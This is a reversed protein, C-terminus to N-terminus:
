RMTWPRAAVPAGLPPRAARHPLLLVLVPLPRPDRPRHAPRPGPAGVHPPYVDSRPGPGRPDQGSRLTASLRHPPTRDFRGPRLLNLLHGGRAAAWDCRHRGPTDGPGHRAAPGRPGHARDPRAGSGRNGGRLLREAPGQAPGRPDPTPRYGARPANPDTPAIRGVLPLGLGARHLEPRTLRPRTVPAIDAFDEPSPSARAPAGGGLPGAAARGRRWCNRCTPRPWRRYARQREPGLGSAREPPLRPGPHVRGAAPGPARRPRRSPSAGRWSLPLSCCLRSRGSTSDSPDASAPMAVPTPEETATRVEPGPGLHKPSTPNLRLQAVITM